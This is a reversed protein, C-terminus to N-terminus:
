IESSIKESYADTEITTEVKTHIQIVNSSNRSPHSNAHWDEYLAPSKQRDLSRNLLIRSNLTALLCNAYLKSIIYFLAIHYTTVRFAVAFVLETLAATTTVLGTEITLRILKASLSRTNKFESKNQLLFYIMYATIVFDCVLSGVLWIPIYFPMPHSVDLDPVLGYVIGGYTVMAFQLLSILMVMVPVVISRSVAWIRWSFFGHTLSSVLGTLPAIAVFSWLPDPTLLKGNQGVAVITSLDGGYLTTGVWFGHFAFVTILTEILFVLSVLAKIWRRDNPFQNFYIFCQVSLIGM